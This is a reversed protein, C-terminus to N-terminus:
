AVLEGPVIEAAADTKRAHVLIREIAERLSTVVLGGETAEIADLYRSNDHTFGWFGLMPEVDAFRKRLRRVLYRANTYHAPELYSVCVLQVGAHDVLHINAPMADAHPVIRAGIGRRRLLDVLLLAAFEDFESRGAVCLVPQGRWEPAIEPLAAADAAASEKHDTLNHLLGSLTERVSHHHPADTAGRQVDAEIRALAKLVVDDYYIELPKEKLYAEAHLAAEDPDGELLRLYLSEEDALAPRDGLLVDLFRLHEVHRGLVVLCMTLPTSLLLGPAGWAWTWFTACVLIATASLGISRGYLIPEVVNGLVPEIAAYLGVTLLVKSWGPDVAFGLAVPFIASLPVGVYPVFRFMMGILGWLGANPIGILWLGAGILIGFCVNVATQLLLYRSLRNAADDLALTTRRLDRAGALRIFRDRLDEKQLLIFVVFIIVITATALPELLPGVVAQVIHWPGGENEHIEVVLPKASAQPPPNANAVAGTFENDLKALMASAQGIIGNGQAAGRISDIKHTLNTEYLPLDGALQAFETGIYTGLAGIIVFAFLVTMLVSPVHGLHLRRLREVVPALAFALLIALAAPMLIPRGLYVVAVIITALGAGYFASQLGHRSPGDPGHTASHHAHEAM